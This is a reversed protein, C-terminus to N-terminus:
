RVLRYSVGSGDFCQLLLELILDFLYEMEASIVQRDRSFGQNGPLERSFIVVKGPLEQSNVLRLTRSSFSRPLDGAASLRKLINDNM